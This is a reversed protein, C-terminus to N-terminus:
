FTWTAVGGAFVLLSRGLRLESSAPMRSVRFRAEVIGRKGEDPVLRLVFGPRELTTATGEARSGYGWAECLRTLGARSRDDLAITLGAVDELIAHVPANGLVARYRDLVQRRSVGGAKPEAGPHWEALFRPAYEMLWTSFAANRPFGQPNLSLFWPVQVPGLQRTITTVDASIDVEGLRNRLQDIEGAQDVGFAVASDGRQRGSQPSPEFFEFYTNTGYFYQGTYSTDTRVTTRREYTAFERKLFDSKEVAAYSDSDITVFFHNLFVM